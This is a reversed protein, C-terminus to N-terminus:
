SLDAELSKLVAEPNRVEVGTFAKFSPAAQYVLMPLGGVAKLGRARAARLLSTELPAYVIDFVEAHSPLLSADVDLAPQGRMGLSTANILYDTDPLLDALEEWGGARVRPGFRRALEEAKSSTRNIVVIEDCFLVNQIIPGAAGGAGLVVARHHSGEGVSSGMCRRFGAVDTNDAIVKGDSFILLNAAGQAEAVPNAIDALEYAAQKHPLTVNVGAWGSEMLRRIADALDDPHVDVANYEGALAHDAFWTNHIRPSLSHAIPHGIVGARIVM